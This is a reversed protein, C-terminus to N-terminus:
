NIVNNVENCKYWISDLLDLMKQDKESLEIYATIIEDMEKKILNKTKM